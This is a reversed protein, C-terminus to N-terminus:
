YVVAGRDAKEVARSRLPHLVQHLLPASFPSPCPSMVRYMLFCSAKGRAFCVGQIFHLLHDERTERQRQRICHVCACLGAWREGGGGGGAAGRGDEGVYKRTKAFVSQVKKVLQRGELRKLVKGLPATQLGTQKRLLQPMVGGNAAEKVKQLVLLDEPSLGRYKGDVIKYVLEGEPGQTLLQLDGRKLLGQIVEVCGAYRAEGFHARVAADAASGDPFSQLLDVFDSELSTSHSSSSSSSTSSHSTSAAATASTAAPQAQEPQAKYKGKGKGAGGEGATTKERGVQPGKTPASDSPPNSVPADVATKGAASMGAAALMGATAKTRPQKAVKAAQALTAVFANVKAM